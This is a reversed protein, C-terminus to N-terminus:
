ALCGATSSWATAITRRRMGPMASSPRKSRDRAPWARKPISPRNIPPNTRREGHFDVSPNSSYDFATAPRGRGGCAGRM